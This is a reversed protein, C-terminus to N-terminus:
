AVSNKYRVDCNVTVCVLSKWRRRMLVMVKIILKHCQRWGNGGIMAMAM